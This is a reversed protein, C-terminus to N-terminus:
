FSAKFDFIVDFSSYLVASCSVSPRRQEYQCDTSVSHDPEGGDGGCMQDEHRKRSLILFRSCTSICHFFISMFM